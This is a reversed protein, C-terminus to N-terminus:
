RQKKGRKVLRNEEAGCCELLSVHTFNTIPKPCCFAFPGGVELDKKEEICLHLFSVCLVLDKLFNQYVHEKQKEQGETKLIRQRVIHQSGVALM